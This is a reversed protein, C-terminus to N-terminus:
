NAADNLIVAVRIGAQALREEIVRVAADKYTDSLRLHKVCMRKGIKSDHTCDAVKINPREAEGGSHNLQRAAGTELDSRSLKKCWDLTRQNM